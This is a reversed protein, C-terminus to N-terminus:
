MLRCDSRLGSTQIERKGGSLTGCVATDAELLWQPTKRGGLDGTQPCCYPGTIMGWGDGVWGPREELRDRLLGAGKKRCCTPHLELRQLEALLSRLPLLPSPLLQGLWARLWLRWYIWQM